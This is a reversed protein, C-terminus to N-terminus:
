GRDVENDDFQDCDIGHEGGIGGCQECEPEWDLRDIHEWSQDGMVMEEKGDRSKTTM